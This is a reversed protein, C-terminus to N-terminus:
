AKGTAHAVPSPPQGASRAGTALDESLRTLLRDLDVLDARPWDTLVAGILDTRATREGALATRGAPTLRVTSARGDSPDALREIHGQAELQGLRRSVTSADQGQTEALRSTRMGAEHHCHELTALLSYDTRSMATPDLAQRRAILRSFQGFVRGLTEQLHPGVPSITTHM